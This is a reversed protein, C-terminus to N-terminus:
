LSLEADVALPNPLNDIYFSSVTKLEEEWDIGKSILSIMKAPVISLGKYVNVSDIDFIAQLSLNFHDILPITIIRKYYESISTFPHNARRTQKSVTRTPKSEEIDVESTALIM